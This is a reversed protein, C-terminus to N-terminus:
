VSACPRKMALYLSLRIRKRSIPNINSSPLAVWRPSKRTLLLAPTAPSSIQQSPFCCHSWRPCVQAPLNLSHSPLCSVSQPVLASENRAPLILPTVPFAFESVPPLLPSELPSIEHLSSGLHSQLAKLHNPPELCSGCPYKRAPLLLPSNLFSKLHHLLEWLSM